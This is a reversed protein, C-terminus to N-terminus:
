CKCHVANSELYIQSTWTRARALTMMDAEEEPGECKKQSQRARLARGNEQFYSLRRTVLSDDHQTRPCCM